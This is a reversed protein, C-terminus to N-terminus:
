CLRNSNSSHRSRNIGVPSRGPDRVCTAIVSLTENHV